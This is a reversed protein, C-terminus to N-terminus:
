RYTTRSATVPLGLWRQPWRKEAHAFGWRNVVAGREDLVTVDHNTSAWDWGVFM